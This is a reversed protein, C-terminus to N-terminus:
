LHIFIEVSWGDRWPIKDRALSEMMSLIEEMSIAQFFIISADDVFMSPYSHIVDQM